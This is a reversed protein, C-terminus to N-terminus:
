SKIILYSWTGALEDIPAASQNSLRISVTDAASVRVGAILLDATLGAAPPNMVVVDGTAAGTITVAVDASAGAAISGPDVSVTGKLIKTITTGDSGVEIGATSKVPGSFTSRGM